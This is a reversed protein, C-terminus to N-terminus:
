KRHISRLGITCCRPRVCGCPTLHGLSVHDGDISIDVEQVSVLARKRITQDNKDTIPLVLAIRKARAQNYRTVRQLLVNAGIAVSLDLSLRQAVYANQLSSDVRDLDLMWLKQRLILLHLRLLLHHFLECLM